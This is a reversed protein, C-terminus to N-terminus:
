FDTVGVVYLRHTMSFGLCFNRPGQGHDEDLPDLSDPSEEAAAVREHHTSHDGGCDMAAFCCQVTPM